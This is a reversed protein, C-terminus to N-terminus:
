LAQFAEDTVNMSSCTLDGATLYQYVRESATMAQRSRVSKAAKVLHDGIDYRWHQCISPDALEYLRRSLHDRHALRPARRPLLGRSKGLSRQWVFALSQVSVGLIWKMLPRVKRGIQVKHSKTLWRNEIPRRLETVGTVPMINSALHAPWWGWLECRCVTRQWVTSAKPVSRMAACDWLGLHNICSQM